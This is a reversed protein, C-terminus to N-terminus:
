KSSNNANGVSKKLRLREGMRYWTGSIDMWVDKNLRLFSRDQKTYIKHLKRMLWYM